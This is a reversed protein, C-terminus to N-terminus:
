APLPGEIHFSRDVPRTLIGDAIDQKGANWGAREEASLLGAFGRRALLSYGAPVIEDRLVFVMRRGDYQVEFYYHGNFSEPGIGIARDVVVRRDSFARTLYEFGDMVGPPDLGLLLRIRRRDLPKGGGLRETATRIIVFAQALGNFFDRGHYKALDDMTVGHVRDGDAVFLTEAM